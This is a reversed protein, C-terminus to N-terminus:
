LNSHIPLLTGEALDTQYRCSDIVSRETDQKLDGAISSITFLEDSWEIPLLQYLLHMLPFQM